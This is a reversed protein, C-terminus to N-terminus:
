GHIKAHRQELARLEARLRRSEPKSWCDHWRCRRGYSRSFKEMDPLNEPSIDPWIDSWGVDWRTGRPWVLMQEHADAEHITVRPDATYHPGILKIVRPDNEVVDVHQVHDFSLAAQLVMGLGLGNILVRKADLHYIGVVAEFHDRKEADTDSMWVLSRGHVDPENADVLRTYWGPASGRGDREMRLVELPAVVDTRGEDADTWDDIAKIEFREVRLGDVEGEPVIVTMREHFNVGTM